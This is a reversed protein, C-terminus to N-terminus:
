VLEEAVALGRLVHFISPCLHFDVEDGGGGGGGEAGKVGVAGISAAKSSMWPMNVSISFRM